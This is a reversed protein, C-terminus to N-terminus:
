VESYLGLSWREYSVYFSALSEGLKMRYCTDELLSLLTLIDKSKYESFSSNKSLISRLYAEHRLLEILGRCFNQSYAYEEALIDIIEEKKRSLAARLCADMRQNSVIDLMINVADDTIYNEKESYLLASEISRVLDRAHGDSKRVMNILSNESEIGIGEKEIIMKGLEILEQAGLKFLKLHQSRSIITSPIKEDETTCMVFCVNETGEEIIKLLADWATASLRHAEDLVLFKKRGRVNFSIWEKFIPVDEVSTYSVADVEWFDPNREKEFSTCSECKGCASLPGEKCNTYRALIRAITTKGTGYPGSFIISRPFDGSKSFTKLINSLARKIHTQGYIESIKKPRYRYTFM